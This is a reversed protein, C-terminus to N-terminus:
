GAVQKRAFASVRLNANGACVVGAFVYGGYILSPAWSAPLQLRHAFLSLVVQVNAVDAVRMIVHDLHRIPATLVSM